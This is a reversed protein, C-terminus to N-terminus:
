LNDKKLKFRIICFLASFRLLVVEKKPTLFLVSRILPANKLPMLGPYNLAIKVHNQPSKPEALGRSHPGFVRPGLHHIGPYVSPLKTIPQLSDHTPSIVAPISHAELVTSHAELVTSHAELGNLRTDQKM